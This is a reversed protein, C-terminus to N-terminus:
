GSNLPCSGENGVRRMLMLVVVRSRVSRRPVRCVRRDNRPRLAIPNPDTANPVSVGPKEDFTTDEQLLYRFGNDTPIPQGTNGDVVTVNVTAAQATVGALLAFTLLGVLGKLGNFKPRNINM